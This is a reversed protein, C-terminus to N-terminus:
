IPFNFFFVKRYVILNKQYDTISYIFILNPIKLALILAIFAYKITKSRKHMTAFIENFKKPVYVIVMFITSFPIHVMLILALVQIQDPGM